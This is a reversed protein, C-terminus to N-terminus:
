NAGSSHKQKGEIADVAYRWERANSITEKETHHFVAVFCKCSYAIPKLGRKTRRVTGGCRSCEFGASKTDGPDKVGLPFCYKGGYASHATSRMFVQGPAVCFGSENPKDAFVAPEVETAYEAGFEEPTMNGRHDEMVKQIVDDWPPNVFEEGDTCREWTERIRKIAAQELHPKALMMFPM